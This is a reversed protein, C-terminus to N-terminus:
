EQKPKKSNPSFSAAILFQLCCVHVIYDLGGFNISIDEIQTNFGRTELRSQPM